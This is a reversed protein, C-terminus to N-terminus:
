TYVSHFLNLTNAFKLDNNLTKIVAGQQWLGASGAASAAVLAMVICLLRRQAAGPEIVM